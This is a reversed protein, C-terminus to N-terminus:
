HFLNIAVATFSPSVDSISTKKFSLRHILSLGVGANSSRFFKYGLEFGVTFGNATDDSFGFFTNSLNTSDDQASILSYGLNVHVFPAHKAKSFFYKGGIAATIFRANDPGDVELWEGLYVLAFKSELLRESGFQFFYNSRDINLNKSRGPGFGFYRSRVAIKRRTGRDVEDATVTDVDENGKARTESLVAKVVRATVVDMDELSSAKMKERFVTKGKKKKYLTIIYAEGLKLIKSKLIIKAKTKDETVKFGEQEDVATIILEHVTNAATGDVGVAKTKLIYVSEAFVQGGFLLIGLLIGIVCKM